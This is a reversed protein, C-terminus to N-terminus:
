ISTAWCTCAIVRNKPITTSVDRLWIDLSHQALSTIHLFHKYHYLFSSYLQRVSPSPIRWFKKRSYNYVLQMLSVTLPAQRCYSNEDSSSYTGPSNHPVWPDWIVKFNSYLLCNYDWVNKMISWTTKTCICFGRTMTKTPLLLPQVSSSYIIWYTDKQKWSTEIKIALWSGPALCFHLSPWITRDRVFKTTLAAPQWDLRDVRAAM